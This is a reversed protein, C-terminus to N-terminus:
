SSSGFSAFSSFYRSKKKFKTTTKAAAPARTDESSMWPTRTRSSTFDQWFADGKEEEARSSDELDFATPNSRRSFPEFKPIEDEPSMRNSPYDEEPNLQRRPDPGPAKLDVQDYLM